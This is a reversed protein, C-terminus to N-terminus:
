VPALIDEVAIRPGEEANMMANILRVEKFEHLHDVYIDTPIIEGQELLRARCTGLLLPEAPTYWYQGDSLIINAYYSDTLRGGKIMLIDDSAGRQDFLQKLASRDAYKYTYDIHDAEVIRLSQINPRSYPQFKIDRIVKDYTISVKYLGNRYERPISLNAALNLSPADPYFIRRTRDLRQQHYSLFHFKGNELRITELFLSPTKM